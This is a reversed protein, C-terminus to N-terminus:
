NWKLGLEKKAANWAPHDEIILDAKEVCVCLRLMINVLAVASEPDVVVFEGSKKIKAIEEKATKQIENLNM